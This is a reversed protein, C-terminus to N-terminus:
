PVYPKQVLYRKVHSKPTINGFPPRYREKKWKPMISDDGSSARLLSRSRQKSEVSSSSSGLRPLARVTHPQDPVSAPATLCIWILTSPASFIVRFSTAAFRSPAKPLSASNSGQPRHGARRLRLNGPLPPSDSLARFLGCLFLDSCFFLARRRRAASAFLAM